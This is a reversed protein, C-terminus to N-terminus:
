NKPEHEKGYRSSNAVMEQEESLVINARKLYETKKVFFFQSLILLFGILFLILAIVTYTTDFTHIAYDNLM